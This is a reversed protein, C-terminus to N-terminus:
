LIDRHFFKGAINSNYSADDALVDYKFQYYVEWYSLSKKSFCFRIIERKFEDSKGSKVMEKIEDNSSYYTQWDSEKTIVRKRTKGKLPPKRTTSTLSKKGIYFKGTPMHTIMYVFGVAGDPVSDNIVDKNEFLWNM